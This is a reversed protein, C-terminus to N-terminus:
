HKTKKTLDIEKSVLHFLDVINTTNFSQLTYMYKENPKDSWSRMEQFM